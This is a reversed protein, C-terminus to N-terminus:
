RLFVRMVLRLDDGDEFFEVGSRRCDLEASLVDHM